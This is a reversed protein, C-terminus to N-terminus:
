LVWTLWKCFYKPRRWSYSYNVCERFELICKLLRFCFWHSEYFCFLSFFFACYQESFTQHVYRLQDSVIKLIYFCVNWFSFGHQFCWVYFLRNHHVILSNQLIIVKCEVFEWMWLVKVCFGQITSWARQGYLIFNYILHLIKM